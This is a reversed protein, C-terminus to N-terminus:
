TAIRLVHVLVKVRAQEYKARRSSGARMSILKADDRRISRQSLLDRWRAKLHESVVGNDCPPKEGSELELQMRPDELYLSPNYYDTHAQYTERTRYRIVQLPEGHSAPVRLLRYARGEVQAVLQAEALKFRAQSSTRAFHLSILPRASKKAGLVVWCLLCAQRLTTREASPRMRSEATAIVRRCEDDTLFSDITFVKPLLSVTCTCTCTTMVQGLAADGVRRSRSLIRASCRPLELEWRRDFFHTGCLRFAQLLESKRHRWPSATETPRSPM